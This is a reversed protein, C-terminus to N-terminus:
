AEGKKSDTRIVSLFTGVCSNVQQEITLQSISQLQDIGGSQSSGMLVTEWRAPASTVVEM